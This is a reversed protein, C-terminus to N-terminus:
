KQSSSSPAIKTATTLKMAMTCATNLNSHILAEAMVEVGIQHVAEKATKCSNKTPPGLIDKKHLHELTRRGFKQNGTAMLILTTYQNPTAENNKTTGLDQLKM